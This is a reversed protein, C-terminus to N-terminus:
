RDLLDCRVTEIGWAQLKQELSPASFRAVGIVRETKGLSDWARRIMRALTPGMKGGVGLVVIDGQLDQLSDLVGQTPRSLLEELSDEQIPPTSHAGPITRRNDNM